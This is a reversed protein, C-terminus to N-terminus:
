DKVYPRWFAVSERLDDLVRSEFPERERWSLELVLSVDQAGSRELAALVQQPEIRGVANYQVTFPSHRSKDASSQKIHVVPSVAGFTELWEYPDTDRPDPSSVDGHDVDLNLLMPIPMHDAFRDLLAQTEDVTHALERPISMPEFILFDLGIEAGHRALERWSAVGEEVLQERRQPHNLDAVSLIGFHGGAGRAGLERSIDLFRKWWDLWVRRQEVDPHLLHNLRTYAGTFTTEIAVNYREANELLRGTQHRIVDPPLFPNLLDAVFQCTRLGLEEGVIRLWERPEPYRNVAFGCSLGLRTQM